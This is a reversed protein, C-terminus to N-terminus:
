GKKRYWGRYKSLRLTDFYTLKAPGGVFLEVAFWSKSETIMGVTLKEAHRDDEWFSQGCRLTRRGDTLIKTKM